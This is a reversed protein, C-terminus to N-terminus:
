PFSTRTSQGENEANPLLKSLPRPSFHTRAKVCLLYSELNNKSLRTTDTPIKADGLPAIPWELAVTRAIKKDKNAISSEEGTTRLRQRLWGGGRGDPVPARLRM